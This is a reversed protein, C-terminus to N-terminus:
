LGRRRASGRCWRGPRAPDEATLAFPKRGHLSLIALLAGDRLVPVGLYSTFGRARLWASLVFRPDAAVDAVNVLERREAIWGLVGEGFSLATRPFDRGLAEDSWARPEITRAAEDVLSFSAATGQMLAAAARAIERLVDDMELSSTILRNLRTLAQLRGVRGERGRPAAPTPAKPAARRLAPTKRAPRKSM